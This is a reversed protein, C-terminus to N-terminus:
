ANIINVSMTYYTTKLPPGPYQYYSMSGITGSYDVAHGPIGSNLTVPTTMAQEQSYAKVLCPNKQM